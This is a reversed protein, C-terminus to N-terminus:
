YHMHYSRKLGACVAPLVDVILCLVDQGMAEAVDNGGVQLGGPPLEQGAVFTLPLPSPTPSVEM